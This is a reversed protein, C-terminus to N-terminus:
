IGLKQYQEQLKLNYEHNEPRNVSGLVGPVIDKKLLLELLDASFAWMIYAAALGSAPIFPNKVRPVELMGDGYPACNDIVYDAVEYLHKQSPHESALQSSYTVSTIALTKINLEQCALAFDVVRETKGSVSGIIMLDNEYVNGSKLALKALGVLSRDKELNRSRAQSEIKLNFKFSRLFAFGGARNMLESDIIHGTDFLHIQGGAAIVEAAVLAADFIAKNQTERILAFLEDVKQYYQDKIM